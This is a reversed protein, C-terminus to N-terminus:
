SKRKERVIAILAILVIGTFFGIWAILVNHPLFALRTVALVEWLLVEVGSIM